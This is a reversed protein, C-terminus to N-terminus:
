KMLSGFIAKAKEMNAPGQLLSAEQEKIWYKGGPQRTQEPALYDTPVDLRASQGGYARAYVNQGEKSLVWNVFVKTANPDPRNNFVAWSGAASGVWVGESPTIAQIPAGTRALEIVTSTTPAIVIPNKGHVLWDLMLRQDRMIIPEQKALESLFDPGAVQGQLMMPVFSSGSIGAVTPDNLIMKGKWKPDLLDRWSKIEGPKVLDTNIALPTDPFMLSAIVSHDADVWWLKGQYWTQSIIKPDTLDPYILVTDMPHDLVGAPKLSTLPTTTGTVLVDYSYIGARRQTSIKQTLEPGNSATVVQLQIGFTSSFGKTLESVTTPSQATAGLVVQGEAKGAALVKEWETEWAAKAPAAQTRPAPSTPACAALLFAVLLASVVFLSKNM